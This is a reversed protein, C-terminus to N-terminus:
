KVSLLESLRNNAMEESIELKDLLIKLEEISMANIATSTICIYNAQQNLLHAIERQEKDKKESKRLKLTYCINDLIKM